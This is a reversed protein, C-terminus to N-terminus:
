GIINADCGREYHVAGMSAPLVESPTGSFGLRRGFLVVSGLEQATCSLMSDSLGMISPFVHEYLYHRIASQSQRLLCWLQEIQHRDRFNVRELPWVSGRLEDLGDNLALSHPAADLRAEDKSMDALLRGDWSFGVVRGGAERVWSAWRLCTPRRAHPGRENDMESRLLRLLSTFDHRRM